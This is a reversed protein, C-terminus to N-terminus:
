IADRWAPLKVPDVAFAMSKQNYEVDPPEALEVWGPVPFTLVMLTVAAPTPIKQLAGPTANSTLPVARAVANLPGNVPLTVPLTEPLEPDHVPLAAVAVLADPNVPVGFMVTPVIPHLLIVGLTLLVRERPLAAKGQNFVKEVVNVPVVKM